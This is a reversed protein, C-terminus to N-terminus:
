PKDGMLYLAAHQLLLITKADQIHGSQIWDLATDFDVEMVEIDEGEEALGGGSGVRDATEYPAVFYHIKETVSGPSVYAVYLHQLNGVCFGTEQATEARVTAEPNDGELVGAPVEILFGQHDEDYM